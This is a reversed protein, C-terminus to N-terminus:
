FLCVSASLPHQRQHGTYMPRTLCGVGATEHLLVTWGHRSPVAALAFSSFTHVGKLTICTARLGYVM